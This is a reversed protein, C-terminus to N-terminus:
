KYFKDLIYKISETNCKFYFRKKMRSTSVHENDELRLSPIYRVKMGKKRILEALFLEEGFLFIPYDIRKYEKFFNSTLLMFSGHGAYIDMENYKPALKKRKYATATYLYFLIPYKYMYYLMKLRNKSYRAIVKPNRDRDEEHSYIQPAIWATDHSVDISNLVKFFDESLQLDVNSIAVYDYDTVNDLDNIVKQTAGLYGLNDFQKQWINISSFCDLDLSVYVSSNDAIIVDVTSDFCKAAAHEVSLLYKNLEDYSNYNVAVILVKINNKM